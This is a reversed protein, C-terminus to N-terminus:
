AICGGIENVEIDLANIRKSITEFPQSSQIEIEEKPDSLKKVVSEAVFWFFMISTMFIAPLSNFSIHTLVAYHMSKMASDVVERAEPSLSSRAREIRKRYNQAREQYIDLNSVRKFLMLNMISLEHSYRIMGNINARVIKYAEDDFSIKGESAKGFLHDRIRFLQFRLKDLRYKKWEVYLVFCLAISVFYMLASYQLYTM